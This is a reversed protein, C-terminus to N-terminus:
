IHGTKQLARQPKLITLLIRYWFYLVFDSAESGQTYECKFIIITIEYLPYFYFDIISTLLYLNLWVLVALVTIDYIIWSTDQNETATYEM